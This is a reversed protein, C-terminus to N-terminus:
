YIVFQFLLIIIDEEIIENSYKLIEISMKFRKLYFGIKVSVRKFDVM